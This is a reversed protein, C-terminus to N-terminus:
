PRRLFEPFANLWSVDFNLGNLECEQEYTRFSDCSFIRVQEPPLHHLQLHCHDKEPGCGRGERIEITEARSVVDRSALDKAVPAYREMFPEGESNRLIGGEGSCGETM